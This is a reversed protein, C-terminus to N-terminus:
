ELGTEGGGTSSGPHGELPGLDFGSPNDKESQPDDFEEALIPGAALPPVVLYRRWSELEQRTEELPDHEPEPHDHEPATERGQQTPRDSSM